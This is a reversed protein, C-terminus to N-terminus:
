AAVGTSSGARGVLTRCVLAFGAIGLAVLLQKSTIM